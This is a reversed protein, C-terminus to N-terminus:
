LFHIWNNFIFVILFLHDALDLSEGDYQNVDIKVPSFTLYMKHKCASFLLIPSIHSISSPAVFQIYSFNGKRIKTFNM